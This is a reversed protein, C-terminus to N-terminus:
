PRVLVAVDGLARAIEARTPLEARQPDDEAGHCTLRRIDSRSTSELWFHIGRILTSQGADDDMGAIDLAAYLIVAARTVVEERLTQLRTVRFHGAPIVENEGALGDIELNCHPRYRDLRRRSVVRGGQIFVRSHGVPVTVPRKLVLVLPEGVPIDGVVSGSPYRVTCAALIATVLLLAVGMVGRLVRPKRWVMAPVGLFMECGILSRQLHFIIV